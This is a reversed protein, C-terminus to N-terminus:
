RKRSIIPMRSGKLQAMTKGALSSLPSMDLGRQIQLLRGHDEPPRQHVNYMRVLEPFEEDRLLWSNGYIEPALILCRNFALLILDDEWFDLFVLSFSPIHTAPSAHTTGANPALPAPFERGGM